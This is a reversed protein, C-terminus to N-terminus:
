NKKIFEIIDMYKFRSKNSIGSKNSMDKIKEEFIDILEDKNYLGNFANTIIIYINEIIEDIEMKKNSDDLIEDLINHLKDLMDVIIKRDIVDNKMLNTLFLSTAKRKENILNIKCFQDYDENPNGSEINDFLILYSSLSKNLIDKLITYKAIMDSYLVAYVDSYFKNTSAIDFIFNGIKNIENEDNNNVVLNVLEDIKPKIKDYNISTIKNLLSRIEDVKKDIGKNVPMETKKFNRVVEWSDADRKVKQDGRKNIFVPTKSYTTASVTNSLSKIINITEQPLEVKFEKLSIIFDVSYVLM